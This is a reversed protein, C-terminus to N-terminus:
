PATPGAFPSDPNSNRATKQATRHHAETKDHGGPASQFVPAHFSPNEGGFQAISAAPVKRIPRRRVAIRQRQDPKRAIKRLPRQGVTRDVQPTVQEEPTAAEPVKATVEAPREDALPQMQSPAIAAIALVVAPKAPKSDQGATDQNREAASRAAQTEAAKSQPPPAKVATRQQTQQGPVPPAAPSATVTASAIPAPAGQQTGQSTKEPNVVGMSVPNPPDIAQRSLPTVAPADAPAGIEVESPQAGSGIPGVWARAPAPSEDAVLQLTTTDAPLRSLPEHNVRFAAFVGFEFSLAVISALLALVLLRVNPFM